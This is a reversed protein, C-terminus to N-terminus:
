YLKYKVVTNNGQETIYMNNGKIILYYPNTINNMFTYAKGAKNIKLINNKTYNAVYLNDMSDFALGIPGGLLPSKSFLQSQGNPMIKYISNDTYSAVYLIGKSDVALGTPGSFKDIVSRNASNATNINNLSSKAEERQSAVVIQNKLSAARSYLDDGEKIKTVYFLARETNGVKYYLEALKLVVEMDNPDLQNIKTYAAIASQYSKLYEFLSGMNYYADVFDPDIAVASKFSQIAKGYEGRSYFDLGENYYMAGETSYAMASGAASIGLLLSLGLTIFIKRMDEGNETVLYSSM